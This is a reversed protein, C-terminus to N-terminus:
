WYLTTGTDIDSHKTHTDTRVDFSDDMWESARLSREEDSIRCRAIAMAERYQCQVNNKSTLQLLIVLYNEKKIIYKDVITM